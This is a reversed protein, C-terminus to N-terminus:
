LKADSILLSRLLEEGLSTFRSRDCSVESEPSTLQMCM